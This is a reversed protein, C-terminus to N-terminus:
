DMEVRIVKELDGDKNMQAISIESDIGVEGQELMVEEQLILQTGSILFNNTTDADLSAWAAAEEFEGQFRGELSPVFLPKITFVM